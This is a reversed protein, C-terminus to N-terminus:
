IAPCPPIKLQEKITLMLRNARTERDCCEKSPGCNEKAEIELSKIAWPAMARILTLLAKNEEILKDADTM